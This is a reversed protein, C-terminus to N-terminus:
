GKPPAVPQRRQKFTDGALANLFGASAWMFTPDNKGSYHTGQDNAMVIAVDYGSKNLHDMFERVEGFLKQKAAEVLEPGPKLSKLPPKKKVNKKSTKKKVSKKTM